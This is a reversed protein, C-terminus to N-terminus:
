NKCISKNQGFIYSSYFDYRYEIATKILISQKTIIKKFIDIIHNKLYNKVYLITNHWNRQM